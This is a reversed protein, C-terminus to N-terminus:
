SEPLIHLEWDNSHVEARSGEFWTVGNLTTEMVEREDATEDFLVEKQGSETYATVAPPLDSENAALEIRMGPSLRVAGIVQNNGGPVRVEDSARSASIEDSGISAHIEDMEGLFVAEYSTNSRFAALDVITLDWDTESRVDFRYSGPDPVFGYTGGYDSGTGGDSISGIDVIRTESEDTATSVLDVTFGSPSEGLTEFYLVHSKGHLDVSDTVASGTGSRRTPEYDEYEHEILSFISHLEIPSHHHGHASGELEAENGWGDIVTMDYSSFQGEAVVLASPFAREEEEGEATQNAKAAGTIANDQTLEPIEIEDYGAHPGVSEIYLLGRGPHEAVGEYTTNEVFSKVEDRRKEDVREFDLHDLASERSTFLEVYGTRDTGESWWDASSSVAFQKVSWDDYPGFENAGPEENENTSEERPNGGADDLCGGSGLLLGLSSAVLFDRRDM